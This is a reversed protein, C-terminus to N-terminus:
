FIFPVLIAFILLGIPIAFTMVQDFASRKNWPKWIAQIAQKM